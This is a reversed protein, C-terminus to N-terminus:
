PISPQLFRVTSSRRVCFRRTVSLHPWLPTLFRVAFNRIHLNVDAEEALQRQARAIALRAASAGGCGTGVLRGTHFVLVRARPSSYALQVAAFRKPAYFSGKCRSAIHRLDLPLSIGSGPMPLAEALTVVNVLRPVYHLFRAFPALAMGHTFRSLQSLAYDSLDTKVYEEEKYKKRSEKCVRICGELVDGISRKKSAERKAVRSAKSKGNPDATKGRLGAEITHCTAIDARLRELANDLRDRMKELDFANRM